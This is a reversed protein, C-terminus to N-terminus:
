HHWMIGAMRAVKRSGFLIQDLISFVESVMESTKTIQLLGVKLNEAILDTIM